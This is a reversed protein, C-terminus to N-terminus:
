KSIKILESPEIRILKLCAGTQASYKHLEGVSCRDGGHIKVYAIDPCKVGTFRIEQYQDRTPKIQQFSKFVTEYLVDEQTFASFKPVISRIQVKMNNKLRLGLLCSNSSEVRREVRLLAHGTNAGKAQEVYEWTHNEKLLVRRGDPLSVEMDADINM